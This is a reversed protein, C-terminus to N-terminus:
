TIPSPQRPTSSRNELDHIGAASVIATADGEGLKPCKVSGRVVGTANFVPRGYRGLWTTVSERTTGWPPSKATTMVGGEPFIARHDAVKYFEAMLTIVAQTVGLEPHASWMPTGNVETVGSDRITITITTTLGKRV